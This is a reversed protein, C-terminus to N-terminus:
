ASDAFGRMVYGNSTPLLNFTRIHKKYPYKEFTKLIKYYVKVFHSMNKKINSETPAVKLWEKMKQM